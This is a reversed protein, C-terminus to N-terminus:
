QKLGDRVTACLESGDGMIVGGAEICQNAYSLAEDNKDQKSLAMSLSYMTFAIPESSMDIAKRLSAEAAQFEERQLGVVGLAEHCQGMFEKKTMLWEDDTMNPDNKPLTPIMSMARKAYDEAKSLKEDRDLDFERTRNPIAGAMAILAGAVIGPNEKSDVIIEGYLLMNEFDNLQQYALMTIYSVIDKVDSDPYNQLFDAGAATREEVTAAQQVALYANYEEETKMQPQAFLGATCVAAALLVMLIQKMAFGGSLM